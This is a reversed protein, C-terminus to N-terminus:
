LGIKQFDGGWESVAYYGDGHYILAVNNLFEHYGSSPFPIIMRRLFIQKKLLTENNCMIYLIDQERNYPNEAIQMVCYDGEYRNNNYCYGTADCKIKSTDIWPYKLIDTEASNLIIILNNEYLNEPLQKMSYVPYSVHIKPPFACSEPSRLTDAVKKYVGKNEPVIISVPKLYVDLIGYGKRYDIDQSMEDESVSWRNVNKLIVRNKGKKKLSVSNNNINVTFSEAMRPPIEIQLEDVGTVNIDIQVDSIIDAKVQAKACEKKIEGLTLWYGKRHRNTRTSYIVNDPYERRRHQSLIKFIDIPIMYDCMFMHITNELKYNYFQGYPNLIETITKLSKCNVLDMESSIMYVPINRLNTLIEIEPRGSVVYLGAFLHPYASAIHFVGHGGNCFGILSVRDYDINTFKNQIWAFMELFAAEGIYGGGTIGRITVDVHIAGDEFDENRLEAGNLNYQETAISIFLPYRKSSNTADVNITRVRIFLNSNDLKSKLVYQDLFMYREHIHPIQQLGGNQLNHVAERYELLRWFVTNGRSVLEITDCPMTSSLCYDYWNKLQEPMYKLYKKLEAELYQKENLCDVPFIEFSVECQEKKDTEFCAKVLGYVLSTNYKKAYSRFYSLDIHTIKGVVAQTDYLLVKEDPSICYVSYQYDPKYKEKDAFLAMFSFQEANVQWQGPRVFYPLDYQAKNKNGALKDISDITENQYNFITIALPTTKAEYVMEVLIVNVGQNLYTTIYPNLYHRDERTFLIEGNLWYKDCNSHTNAGIIVKQKKDSYVVSLFYYKQNMKFTRLKEIEESTLLKAKTYSQMIETEVSKPYILDYPDIGSDGLAAKHLYYDKLLYTGNNYKQIDATFMTGGTNKRVTDKIVKELKRITGAYRYSIKDEPFEIDYEKEIDIVMSVFRLSDIGLDRLDTNLYKKDFEIKKSINRNVIDFLKKDM